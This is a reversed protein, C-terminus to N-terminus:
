YRKITITGTFHETFHITMYTIALKIWLLDIPPVTIISSITV